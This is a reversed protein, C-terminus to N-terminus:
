VTVTVPPVSEDFAVVSVSAEPEAPAVTVIVGTSSVVASLM